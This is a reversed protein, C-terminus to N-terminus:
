QGEQRGSRYAGDAVVLPVADVREHVQQGVRLPGHDFGLGDLEDVELLERCALVGGHGDHAVAAVVYLVRQDEVLGRQVSTLTSGM